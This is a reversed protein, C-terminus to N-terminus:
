EGREMKHSHIYRSIAHEVVYTKSKGISRCYATLDESIKKDLRFSIQVYEKRTKPM